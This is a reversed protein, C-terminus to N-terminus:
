RSKCQMCNIELLYNYIIQQKPLYSIIVVLAINAFFLDFVRYEAGHGLGTTEQLREENNKTEYYEGIILITSIGGGITPM